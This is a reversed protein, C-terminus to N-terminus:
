SAELVRALLRDMAALLVKSTPWFKARVCVPTMLPEVLTPVMLLIPRPVRTSPPVLVKPGTLGIALVVVPAMTRVAPTTLMLASLLRPVGFATMNPLVGTAGPGMWNLPPWNSTVSLTVVLRTRMEVAAPVMLTAAPFVNVTLPAVTFLLPEMVTAPSPVVTKLADFACRVVLTLPPAVRSVWAVPPVGKTAVAVPLVSVMLPPVTATFM